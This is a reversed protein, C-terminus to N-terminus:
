GVGDGVLGRRVQAVRRQQVTLPVPVINQDAADARLLAHGRELVLQGVLVRLVQAVVDDAAGVLVLRCLRRPPLPMAPASSPRRTMSQVWTIAPAQHESISASRPASTILTSVTAPSVVRPRGSESKLGNSKT